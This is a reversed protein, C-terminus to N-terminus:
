PSEIFPDIPDVPEVSPMGEPLLTEPLIVEPISLEVPESYWEPDLNEELVKYQTGGGNGWDNKGAISTEM